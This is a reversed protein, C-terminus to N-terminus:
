PSAVRISRISALLENHGRRTTAMGYILLRIHTDVAIQAFVHFPGLIGTDGVHDIRNYKVITAKMGNIRADSREYEPRDEPLPFATFLPEGKGAFVQLNLQTNDPARWRYSASDDVYDKELQPPVRILIKRGGGIRETEWGTVSCFAPGCEHRYPGCASIMASMGLMISRRTKLTLM